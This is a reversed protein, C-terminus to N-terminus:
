VGVPHTHGKEWEVYADYDAKPDPRNTVEDTSVVLDPHHPAEPRGECERLYDWTRGCSPCYYPHAALETQRAAILESESLPSASPAPNSLQKKLAENEDRQAQLDARMKQQEAILQGLMEKIDGDGSDPAVPNVSAEM